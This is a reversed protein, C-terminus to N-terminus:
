KEAVLLCRTVAGCEIQCYKMTQHQKGKVLPALLSHECERAPPRCIKRAQIDVEQAGDPVTIKLFGGTALRIITDPMANTITGM